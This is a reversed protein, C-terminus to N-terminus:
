GDVVFAVPLDQAVDRRGTRLQLVSFIRFMLLRVLCYPRPSTARRSTLRSTGGPWTIARIPGDPAPLLVRIRQMFLSTSGVFPEMLRPPCSSVVSRLL